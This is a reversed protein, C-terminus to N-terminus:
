RLMLFEEVMSEKKLVSFLSLVSGTAGELLNYSEATILNDIETNKFGVPSTDDYFMLLQNVVRFIMEKIKEKPTEKYTADLICLLGAYGHCIIPLNLYLENTDLSSVANINNAFFDSETLNGINRSSVMLSRSIGVNGYCWSTRKTLPSSATGEIIDKYSVKKPWYIVGNADFFMFSKYFDIQRKVALLYKEEAIGSSYIKSLLMMPGAIGHALGLNISGDPFMESDYESYQLEPNIHWRPLKVGKYVKDSCLELLYRGINRLTKEKIEHDYNLYLVSNGIGSIGKVIDYYAPRINDITETMKDAFYNAFFCVLGSLKKLFNEFEGTQKNLYAVAMAIGSLGNILSISYEKHEISFKLRNLLIFANSLWHNKNCFYPYAESIAIIIELIEDKKIVRKKRINIDLNKFYNNIARHIQCVTPDPLGYYNEDIELINYM